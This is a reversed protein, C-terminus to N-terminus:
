KLTRGWWEHAIAKIADDLEPEKEGSNLVNSYIIAVQIKGYTVIDDPQAVNARLCRKCWKRNKLLEEVSDM